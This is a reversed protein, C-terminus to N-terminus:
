KPTFEFTVLIGLARMNFVALAVINDCTGRVSTMLQTFNMSPFDKDMRFRPLLDNIKRCAEVATTSPQNLFEDLDAFSALVSL